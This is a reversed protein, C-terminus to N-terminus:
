LGAGCVGSPLAAQGDRRWGRVSAWGCLCNGRARKGAPVATAAPASSTMQEIAQLSGVPGDGADFTFDSSPDENIILNDYPQGALASVHDGALRPEPVMRSLDRAPRARVGRGAVM